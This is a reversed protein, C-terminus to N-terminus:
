SAPTRALVLLKALLELQARSMHALQERHLRPVAADLPKLLVLAKATIVAVVVRRDQAHRSRRVLERAELRDLLRTVDPDRNVMREGVEGCTAGQPGAGRLIRLVNYQAFTLETARLAQAERQLLVDGTRLVNLFVEEELNAFPKRQQLDRALATPM